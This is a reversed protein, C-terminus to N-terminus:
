SMESLIEKPKKRMIMIGAVSVSIFLLGGIAITDKILMDSTVEIEINQLKLDPATYGDAFVQNETAEKQEEAQSQSQQAMYSATMKSLAPSIMFSLVLGLVGILMAEWLFQSWIKKKSEGLAMFIGIEQTRNKMWFLFILSLIIFSAASVVILLMESLQKMNNFNEAMSQINGNSDILDYREWNIDVKEIEKRVADYQDVNGVKFIAYRFLPNGEEGSPKEPFNMDTFITNESRYTDGSMVPELKQVAEYIGVIKASYVKSNEKEDWQNFQLSDGVQLGNLEALEKSIVCVDKDEKTTMRGDVLKIKGAAVDMDMEM